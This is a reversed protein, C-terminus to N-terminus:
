RKIKLNFPLKINLTFHRKHQTFDIPLGTHRNILFVTVITHARQQPYYTGKQKRKRRKEFHYALIATNNFFGSIKFNALNSSTFGHIMHKQRAIAEIRAFASPINDTTFKDIQQVIPDGSSVIKISM